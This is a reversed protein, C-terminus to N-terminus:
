IHGGVTIVIAAYMIVARNTLVWIVTIPTVDPANGVGKCDVTAARPYSLHDLDVFTEFDSNPGFLKLVHNYTDALLLAHANDDDCLLPYWLNSRKSQGYTGYTELVQGLSDYETLRHNNHSCVVFSDPGMPAITDLPSPTSSWVLRCIAIADDWEGSSDDQMCSYLTDSSFDFVLIKLRSQYLYLGCGFKGRIIRQPRKGATTPLSFIGNEASVLMERRTFKVNWPRKIDDFRLVAM